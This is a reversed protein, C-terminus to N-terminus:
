SGQDYDKVRESAGSALSLSVITVRNPRVTVSRVLERGTGPDVARITACGIPVPIRAIPTTGFRHGNVYIESWPRTDVTLYGIEEIPEPSCGLSATEEGEHVVSRDLEAIAWARLANLRTVDGNEGAAILDDIKSRYTEADFKRIRRMLAWVQNADANRSTLIGWAKKRLMNLWPADALKGLDALTLLLRGAADPDIRRAELILEDVERFTADQPKPEQARADNSLCGDSHDRAVEDSAHARPDETALALVLISAASIAIRM